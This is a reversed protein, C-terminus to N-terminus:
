EILGSIVGFDVKMTRTLSSFVQFVYVLRILTRMEKHCKTTSSNKIKM